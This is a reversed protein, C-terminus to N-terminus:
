RSAAFVKQRQDFSKPSVLTARRTRTLPRRAPRNTAVVVLVPTTTTGRRTTVRKRLHVEIAKTHRAAVTFRASGLALRKPTKITVTGTCRTPRAPCRVKITVRGRSAPLRSAGTMAAPPVPARPEPAAQKTGAPCGNPARTGAFRAELYPYALLYFAALGTLHEPLPDRYYDITSGAACGAAFLADVPEIHVLQDHIANYFYSPAHPAPGRTLDLKALTDRVQPIAKFAAVSPANTLESLKVFPANLVSMSCGHGDTGDHSALKRGRENLLSSLRMEPYARDVGILAGLITGAFLTGSLPVLLDAINAPIGGAATGVLNLEPAYSQQLANAWVTPISGGSYGIMAVPTGPGALGAPAFQEVARVSDLAARGALPGVTWQSDPGEYDPVVVAWGHELGILITANEELQTTGIGSRMTYSPACSTTLSDEATHYSLLKRQGPAPHSPLLLTTVTAIPHGTADTTRYLLQYATTSGVAPLGGITVKRSRLVAGPAFSSLSPGPAYFPDDKPLPIATAAAPGLLAAIVASTLAILSTAGIRRAAGAALSEGSM